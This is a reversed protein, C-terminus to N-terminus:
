PNKASISVAMGQLYYNFSSEKLGAQKFLDELEIDSMKPANNHWARMTAASFGTTAVSLQLSHFDEDTFKDSPVLISIVGGKKCCRSLEGIAKNQDAVINILSTAIVANFLNSEFPLDLVDAEIFEISSNNKNAVAIMDNSFDAGTPVYGIQKLYSTLAGTACGVELITSNSDFHLDDVWQRLAAKYWNLQNIREFLVTPRFFSLWLILLQSFFIKLSELM